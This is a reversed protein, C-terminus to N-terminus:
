TESSSTGRSRRPSQNNLSEAVDEHDGPYLRRRMELAQRALPESAKQFLVARGRHHRESRRDAGPKSDLVRVVDRDMMSCAFTGTITSAPTPV